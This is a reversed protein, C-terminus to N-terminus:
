EDRKRAKELGNCVIDVHRSDFNEKMIERVTQWQDELLLGATEVDRINEVLLRMIGATFLANRVRTNIPLQRLLRYAEDIAWRKKKLFEINHPLLRPFKAM